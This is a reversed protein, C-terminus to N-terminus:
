GPLGPMVSHLRYEVDDVHVVRTILHRRALARMSAAYYRSNPLDNDLPWRSNHRLLTLLRTQRESRAWKAERYARQKARREAKEAALWGEVAQIWATPRAQIKRRAEEFDQGHRAAVKAMEEATM